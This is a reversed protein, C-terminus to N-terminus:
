RTTQIQPQESSTVTSSPIPGSILKTWLELSIKRAAQSIVAAEPRTEHNIAVSSFGLLGARSTRVVDMNESYASFSHIVRRSTLDIVASHLDLLGRRLEQQRSAGYVLDAGREDTQTRIAPEFSSISIEVLYRAQTPSDVIRFNRSSLLDNVLAAKVHRALELPRGTVLTDCEVDAIFVIATPKRSDTPLPAAAVTAGLGPNETASSPVPKSATLCGSTGISIICCLTFLSRARQVTSTGRLPRGNGMSTTFKPTTEMKSKMLYLLM